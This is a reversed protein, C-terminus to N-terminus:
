GWWLATSSTFTNVLLFGLDIAEQILAALDEDLSYAIPSFTRCSQLHSLNVSLSVTIQSVVDFAYCQMWFQLDIPNPTQSLDELQKVFVRLCDEVDPEM